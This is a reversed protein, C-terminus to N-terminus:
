YFRHKTLHAEWPTGRAGPSTAPLPPAVSCDDGSWGDFCWCVSSPLCAGHASCRNPCSPSECATGEGYTAFMADQRAANDDGTICQPLDDYRFRVAVVEDSSMKCFVGVVLCLIGLFFLWFSM